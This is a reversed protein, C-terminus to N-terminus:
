AREYEGDGVRERGAALIEDLLRTNMAGPAIANIDIRAPKVEEALTETLRVLGTKAAAYASVNARPSTAGGGSLNIIKGYGSRKMGPLVARCLMAPGILNTHITDIWQQPDNSELPGIPGQIAANNVL